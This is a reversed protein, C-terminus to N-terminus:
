MCALFLMLLIGAGGRRSDLLFVRVLIALYDGDEARYARTASSRSPAEASTAKAIPAPPRASWACRSYCGIGRARAVTQSACPGDPRTADRFEAGRWADNAVSRSRETRRRSPAHKRPASARQFLGVPGPGLPRGFMLLPVNDGLYYLVKRMGEIVSYETATRWDRLSFRYTGSSSVGFCMVAYLVASALAAWAFSM